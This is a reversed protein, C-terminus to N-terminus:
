IENQFIKEIEKLRNDMNFYVSREIALKRYKERIKNDTIISKLGKYLAEETNDVIIGFKGNELIEDMGSCNTTIVPKGVILAETVATSYGEIFSGCVYVDAMNLYKYPNEEYGFLKVTESLQNKEIYNKIKLKEPGDGLIWLDYKIREESLRKHIRLLRDYGKSKVLRAITIVIIRNKNYNLNERSLEKIENTDILNRVVKEKKLKINKMFNHFNEKTKNSVFVTIDYKEYTKYLEKKTRYSSIFESEDQMETHVWNILTTNEYFCGSAIRTTPGELYSVIIDYRERIMYKYLMKKSFLKFIHINGKFVRKFVYKYRINSNLYQKNIGYDFITQVTIDYKQANLNNVLNVLVKEAGGGGLTPIFFLIKKKM